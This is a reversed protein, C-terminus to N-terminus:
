LPKCSEDVALELAGLYRLKVVFFCIVQVVATGSTVRTVELFFSTIAYISNGITATPHFQVM